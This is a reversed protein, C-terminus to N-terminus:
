TRVPLHPWLAFDRIFAVCDAVAGDLMAQGKEATAASPDGMSGTSTLRHFRHFNKVRGGYESNFWPTMLAQPHSTARDHHVLDPRVAMMLSTEYECAHTIASTAMGLRRADLADRALHWWSALVLHAADAADDDAVLESLALSAPVENGGHGNLFFIRNFGPALLSRAISKIMTAYVSASVSVAGAFDRHHDSAGLWLTPLVLADSTMTREIAEAIATVQITDVAVPLHAGHQEISGLPVIVPIAKDIAQIAPSTLQHLWM